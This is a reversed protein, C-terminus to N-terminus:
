VHVGVGILVLHGQGSRNARLLHAVLRHLQRFTRVRSKGNVVLDVNFWGRLYSCSHFSDRRLEFPAVKRVIVQQLDFTVILIEPSTAFWIRRGSLLLLDNPTSSHNSRCSESTFARPALAM